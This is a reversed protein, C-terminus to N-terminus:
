VKKSWKKLTGSWKKGNDSSLFQGGIKTSNIKGLKAENKNTIKLTIKKNIGIKSDAIKKRCFKKLTNENWKPWKLKTAKSTNEPGRLHLKTPLFGKLNLNISM